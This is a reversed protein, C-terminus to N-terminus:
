TGIGALRLLGSTGTEVALGVLTEDGRGTAHM